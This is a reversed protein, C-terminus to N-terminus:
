LDDGVKSSGGPKYTLLRLHSYLGRYLLSHERAFQVLKELQEHQRATIEALSRKENRRLEWVTSFLRRV